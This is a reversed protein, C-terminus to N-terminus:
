EPRWVEGSLNVCFISIDRRRIFQFKLESFVVKSALLEWFHQAHLLSTLEVESFFSVSKKTLLYCAGSMYEPWLGRFMRPGSTYWPWTTQLAVCIRAYYPHFMCIMQWTPLKFQLFIGTRRWLRLLKKLLRFIFWHWGRDAIIPHRSYHHWHRHYHQHHCDGWRTSSSWHSCAKTGAEIRALLSATALVAQVNIDELMQNRSREVCNIFWLDLLLLCNKGDCPSSSYLSLSLFILSLSSFLSPGLQYICAHICTDIYINRFSGCRFLSSWVVVFVIIALSLSSSLFLSLSLSSLSPLLSLLSLSCILVVFVVFVAFSVFSVLVVFVVFVDLVVFVVVVFLCYLCCLCCLCWMKDWFTFPFAVKNQGSTCPSSTASLRPNRLINSLWSQM